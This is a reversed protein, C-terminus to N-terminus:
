STARQTEFLLVPPLAEAMLSSEQPTQECNPNQLCVHERKKRNIYIQQVYIFHMQQQCTPLKHSIHLLSSTCASARGILLLFLQQIHWYCNYLMASNHLARLYRDQPSLFPDGCFQTVCNLKNLVSFIVM